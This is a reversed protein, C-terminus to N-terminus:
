GPILAAVDRKMEEFHCSGIPVRAAIPARRLLPGYQPSLVFLNRTQSPENTHSSISARAAAVQCGALQGDYPETRGQGCACLSM